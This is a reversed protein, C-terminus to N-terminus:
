AGMRAVESCGSIQIDESESKQREVKVRLMKGEDSGEEGFTGLFKM